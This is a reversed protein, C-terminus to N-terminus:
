KRSGSEDYEECLRRRLGAFDADRVEGRDAMDVSMEVERRLRENDELVPVAVRLIESVLEQETGFRGRGVAQTVLPQLDFPIEVTMTM